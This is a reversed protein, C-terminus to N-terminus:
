AKKRGIAGFGLLGLAFLLVTSPEPVVKIIIDQDLDAIFYEGTSQYDALKASDADMAAVLETIYMDYWENTTQPDETATERDYSFDDTGVYADEDWPTGDSPWFAYDLNYGIEDVDLDAIVEWIALQLGAGASSNSGIVGAYSDWLWEVYVQNSITLSLDNSYDYIPDNELNLSLNPQVCFAFTQGYGNYDLITMMGAGNVTDNLYTSKISGYGIVDSDIQITSANVPLVFLCGTLFVSLFLSQIVTCIKKM